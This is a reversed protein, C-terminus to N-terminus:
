KLEMTIDEKDIIINLIAIKRYYYSNNKVNKTVTQRELDYSLEHDVGMERFGFTISYSKLDHDKLKNEVCYKWIIFLDSAFSECFRGAYQILQTLISSYNIEWQENESLFGMYWQGHATIM